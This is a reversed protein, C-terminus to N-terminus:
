DNEKMIEYCRTLEDMADRPNYFPQLKKLSMVNNVLHLGQSKHLDDQSLEQKVEFGLRKAMDVITYYGTQGINFIGVQGADLLAQTAEVITDCSTVTNFEKVFSDFQELKCILNNRKGEAPRRSDFILRPRIILDTGEDAGIEGLWKSVVYNCHAARSETERNPWNMKDYLCGTSIHVFKARNECIASLYTPLDGNVSKIHPWNQRDECYRTDSIGITNIVAEVDDNMRAMLEKSTVGQDGRWEFKDRGWIEYGRRAFAQALFGTGLVLIKSKEM